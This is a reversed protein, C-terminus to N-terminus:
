DKIDLKRRLRERFHNVVRKSKANNVYFSRMESCDTPIQRMRKMMHNPIEKDQEEEIGYNNLKENTIKKNISKLLNFLIENNDSNAEMKGFNM